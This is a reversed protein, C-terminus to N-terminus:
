SISTIYTKMNNILRNNNNIEFAELSIKIDNELESIDYVVKVKNVESLANVFEIQHDDMHEGFKKQRPVIIIPTKQELATLISGVGAHTVVLRANKHYKIMEGYSCFDFYKANIPEYKTHGLQIIVEENIKGAIEDM